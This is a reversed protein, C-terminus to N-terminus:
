KYNNSKKINDKALLYQLNSLVHLGSVNKGRLPIIHDVHYGKPCNNYYNYILNTESWPPTREKIYRKEEKSKILLCVKCNSSLYDDSSNDTSFETYHKYSDCKNCFKYDIISLLTRRWNKHAGSAYKKKDYGFKPHLLTRICQKIPNITYGLYEAASELSPSSILAKILSFSTIGEM